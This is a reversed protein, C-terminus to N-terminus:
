PELLVDKYEPKKDFVAKVFPCVPVLKLNHNRVYQVATNVMQYGVNKGRIEDAVETHEVIIKKDDPKSYTMRALIEGDVKVYFMGDDEREKHQIVM